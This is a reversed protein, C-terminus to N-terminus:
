AAEHLVDWGEQFYGVSQALQADRGPVNLGQGDAHCTDAGHKIRGLPVMGTTKIEGDTQTENLRQINAVQHLGKALLVPTKALRNRCPELAPREINGVRVVVLPRRDGEEHDVLLCEKKAHFLGHSLSYGLISFTSRGAGELEQIEAVLEQNTEDGM